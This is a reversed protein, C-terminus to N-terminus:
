VRAKILSGLRQGVEDLFRVDEPTFRALEPSDVDLVGWVQGKSDVLPVVVESRSRSDCAIHGPFAHADPVVQTKSGAAATGCVGKGWDIRVCAPLGQFPGLVLQGSSPELLYFGVWNIRTLVQNLLAAVNALNAILNPENSVLGELQALALPYDEDPTGTYYSLETM